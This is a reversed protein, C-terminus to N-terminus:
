RAGAVADVKSKAGVIEVMVKNPLCVISQGAKNIVGSKQCLKDPCTAKKIYVGDKTICIINTDLNVEYEKDELSNIDIEEVVKDAKKIYVKSESYEGKDRGIFFTLTAFLLIMFILLPILIKNTLKTKM